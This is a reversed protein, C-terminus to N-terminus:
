GSKGRGDPAAVRVPTGSARPKRSAPHSATAQVALGRLLSGKDYKEWLPASNQWALDKGTLGDVLENGLRLLGLVLQALGEPRKGERRQADSGDDAGTDKGDDSRRQGAFLEVGRRNQISRQEIVHDAM